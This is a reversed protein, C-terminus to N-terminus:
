ASFGRTGAVRRLKGIHLLIEFTSLSARTNTTKRPPLIHSEGWGKLPLVGQRHWWSSQVAPRPFPPPRAKPRHFVRNRCFSGLRFGLRNGDVKDGHAMERLLRRNEPMCRERESPSCMPLTFCPSAFAHGVWLRRFICFRQRICPM